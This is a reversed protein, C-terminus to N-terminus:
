ANQLLRYLDEIGFLIINNEVAEKGVNFDTTKLMSIFEKSNFDVLHINLPILSVIKGVKKVLDHDDAILMLDVDSGKSFKGSVCSGFVLLLFPHIKTEM